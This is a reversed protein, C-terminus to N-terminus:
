GQRPWGDYVGVRCPSKNTNHQLETRGGRKTLAKRYLVMSDKKMGQEYILSSRGTERAGDM